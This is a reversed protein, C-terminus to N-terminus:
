SPPLSKGQNSYRYFTEYNKRLYGGATIRMGNLVGGLVHAGIRRFMGQARQVIGYTNVGARVVFIVGDVHTGLVVPYDRRIVSEYSLLGLGDLFM